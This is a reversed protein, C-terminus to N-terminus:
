KVGWLHIYWDLVTLAAPSRMCLAAIPWYFMQVGTPAPRGQYFKAVPGISLPYILLLGVVAWVLWLSGSKHNANDSSLSEPHIVEGPAESM